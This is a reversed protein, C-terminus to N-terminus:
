RQRGFELKEGRVHDQTEGNQFAIRGSVITTDVSSKFSYGDFPTWGCKSLVADHAALTPKDLDVLTLDAWYGERLYGREKVQYCEAVAHTVKHVARELSIVGRQYQELWAVLAYQVLPLGAPAQMFPLQKEEWLHPANDTAVVDLRDDLLAQLLAQRDSELKVAPNCKILSGKEAYDDANFFLHHVCAEGTIRKGNVPGVEFHEMEEATTLHLVHLRADHKKALSTALTSSKMCAERSRINPHEWAPVDDGYKAKAADENAYITPSDECHTAILLPSDRFIGDLTQPNDVLMNGTSAGMFAKVGCAQGVKLRQIQELNDNTAGFYFAYNGRSKEAGLGYKHELAEHTTTSPNVNPMEMFSTIGGAVAARSETAIDAKDTLGPERFHVQGDIMGPMLVKGAADIVIAGEPATISGGIQEIRHNRVLLDGETIQGENVMRANTILIPMSQGKVSTVPGFM